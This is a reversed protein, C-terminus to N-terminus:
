KGRRPRTREPIIDAASVYMGDAVSRIVALVEGVPRQAQICGPCVDVGHWIEAASPVTQQCFDCTIVTRRSM